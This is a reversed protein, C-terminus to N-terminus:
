ILKNKKLIIGVVIGLIVAIGVYHMYELTAVKKEVAGVRSELTGKDEM